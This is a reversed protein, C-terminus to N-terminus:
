CMDSDSNPKFYRGRFVDAPYKAANKTLKHEVASSLDLDLTNALALIFCTIDAVEEVIQERRREDALLEALEENRVWQFHEMLEATEIAIAMSLNKPDHYKEWEREAVFDALLQRLRAVTTTDDAM